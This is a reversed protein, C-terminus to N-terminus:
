TVLTPFAASYKCYSCVRFFFFFFEAIKEARGWSRQTDFGLLHVSLQKSKGQGMDVIKCMIKVRLMNVVKGCKRNIQASM